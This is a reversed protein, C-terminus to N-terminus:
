VFVQCHTDSDSHMQIACRCYQQYAIGIPKIYAFSDIRALPGSSLQPYTFNANKLWYGLDDYRLFPTVYAPKGHIHIDMSIDMSVDM